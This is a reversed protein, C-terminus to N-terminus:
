KEQKGFKKSLLDAFESTPIGSPVQGRVANLVPMAKFPLNNLMRGAGTAKSAAGGIKSGWALPNLISGPKSQTAEQRLGVSNLSKQLGVLNSYHKNANAFQKFLEPEESKVIDDQFGRLFKWAELAKESGPALRGTQPDEIVMDRYIHNTLDRLKGFSFNGQKDSNEEIVKVIQDLYANRVSLGSNSVSMGKITDTIPAMPVDTDIKSIVDRIQKGYMDVAGNVKGAFRIPFDSLSNLNEGNPLETERLSAAIDSLGKDVDSGLLNALRRGPVGLKQATAGVESESVTPFLNGIWQGALGGLAGWGGGEAATKAIHGPDKTLPTDSLSQAAGIAAGGAMAPVYGAAMAEGVGPILMPGMAGGVAGAGYAYPHTSKAAEAKSTLDSLNEEYPGNELGAVAQQAFPVNRLAGRGAAMLAGEDSQPMDSEPTSFGGASVAPPVPASVIAESDPTQFEM